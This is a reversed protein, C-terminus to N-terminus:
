DDSRLARHRTSAKFRLALQVPRRKASETLVTGPLAHCITAQVAALLSRSTGLRYSVGGGDAVAELALLPSRTDAAWQRLVILARSLKRLDPPNRRVARVSINRQRGRRSRESKGQPSDKFTKSM